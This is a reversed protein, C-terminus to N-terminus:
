TLSLSSFPAMFHQVSQLDVGAQVVHSKHQTKGPDVFSLAHIDLAEAGSWDERHGVHGLIAEPVVRAHGGVLQSHGVGARREDTLEWSNWGSPLSPCDSHQTPLQPFSRGSKLTKKKKQEIQQLSEQHVMLSFIGLTREEGM